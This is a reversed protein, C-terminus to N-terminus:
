NAGRAASRRRWWWRALLPLLGLAAFTLLLPISVLDEVAAIRALETGASVHLVTAPILGVFSLPAFQRLPLRTLAMSLNVVFYPVIAMLRLALLYFPGDRAMGRDIMAVTTALRRAVWDRALYRAALFGLSDGVTLAALVILSGALPGFIAGAALAPVLVAGPVALTLAAIQAAMFAAIFLAPHAHYHAELAARQTQLGELSLLQALGSAHFAALLAALLAVLILKRGMPRAKAPEGGSVLARLLIKVHDKNTRM